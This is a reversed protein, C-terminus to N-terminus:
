QNRIRAIQKKQWQMGESKKGGERDESSLSLSSLSSKSGDKKNAQPTSGLAKLRRTLLRLLYSLTALMTLVVFVATITFAPDVSRPDFRAHFGFDNIADEIELMNTTIVIWDLLAWLGLGGVTLGKVIGLCTAGLFCRDIGCIGLGFSSILALTVKSRVFPPEGNFPIEIEHPAKERLTGASANQENLALGLKAAPAHSALSLNSAQHDCLKHAVFTCYMRKFLHASVTAKRATMAQKTTVEQHNQVQKRTLEQAFDLATMSINELDQADEMTGTGLQLLVVSQLASDEIDQSAVAAVFSTVAIFGLRQAM